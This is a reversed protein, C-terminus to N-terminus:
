PIQDTSLTSTCIPADSNGSNGLAAITQKATLNDGSKVTISGPRLHAYLM